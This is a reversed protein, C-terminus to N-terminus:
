RHTAINTIGSHLPKASVASAMGPPELTALGTARIFRVPPELELASGAEEPFSWRVWPLCVSPQLHAFSRERRQLWLVWGDPAM